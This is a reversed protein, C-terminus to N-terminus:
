QGHDSESEKTKQMHGDVGYTILSELENPTIVIFIDPVKGYHDILCNRISDKRIDSPVVWVVYPFVGNKKQEFGAKFYQICRECKDIITPYSETALDIELFWHDEYGNNLTVAYLDAKYSTSKGIQGEFYRWCEPEFEINTLKVEAKRCIEVIQLYAEATVLTHKLFYVSPSFFRNSVAVEPSTLSLLRVGAPTLRWIFPDSGHYQGGVRRKLAGILGYNKLKALNRNAARVAATQNDLNNFYLRVIQTTTLYRCQHLSRLIKKDRPGIRSFLEELQQQSIRAEANM